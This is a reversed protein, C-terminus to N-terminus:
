YKCELILYFKVILRANMNVRLFHWHLLKPPPTRILAELIFIKRDTKKLKLANKWKIPM